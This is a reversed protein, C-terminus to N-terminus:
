KPAPSDKESVPVPASAPEDGAQSGATTVPIGQRELTARPSAFRNIEGLDVTKEGVRVRQHTMDSASKAGTRYETLTKQFERRDIRPISAPLDAARKSDPKRTASTKRVAPKRVTKDRSESVVVPARPTAIASVPVDARAIPLRGDGVVGTGTPTNAAPRVADSTSIPARKSPDIPDDPHQLAEARRASAIM